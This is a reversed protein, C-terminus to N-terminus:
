PGRADGPIAGAAALTAFACVEGDVLAVVLRDGASFYGDDLLESALHVGADWSRAALGIPDVVRLTLISM